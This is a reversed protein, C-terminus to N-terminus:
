CSVLYGRSTVATSRTSSCISRGPHRRGRARDLASYDISGVRVAQDLIEAGAVFEDRQKRAFDVAESVPLEVQKMPSGTTWTKSERSLYIGFKLACGGAISGLQGSRFIDDNKFELWYVLSDAGGRGHMAELLETGDLRGLADPGFEHRFTACFEQHKAQTLALGDKVRKDWATRIGDLIRPDTKIRESM